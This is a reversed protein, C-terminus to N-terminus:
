GRGPEMAERGLEMVVEEALNSGGWRWRGRGQEMMREEAGAGEGWSWRGTEPEWWPQGWQQHWPPIGWVRGGLSFVDTAPPSPCQQLREKGRPLLMPNKRWGHGKRSEKGRGESLSRCLNALATSPFFPFPAFSSGPVM